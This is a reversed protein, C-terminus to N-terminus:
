NFKNLNNIIKNKLKLIFNHRKEHSTFIYHGWTSTDIRGEEPFIERNLQFTENETKFYFSLDYFDNSDIFDYIDVGIIEEDSTNFDIINEGGYSISLFYVKDGIDFTPPVDVYKPLKKIDYNNKHFDELNEYHEIDEILTQRTEQTKKDGYVIRHMLYNYWKDLKNLRYCNKEFEIQEGVNTTQKKSYSKLAEEVSSYVNDSSIIPNKDLTEVINVAKRKCIPMQLSRISINYYKKMNYKKIIDELLVAQKYKKEKPDYTSNSLETTFNSM